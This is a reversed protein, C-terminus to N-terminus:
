MFNFNVSVYFNRGPAYIPISSGRVSRNLHEYYNQNFLNQVGATMGFIKLIQYSLKLDVVTFAPSETEGFATSIRSQKLVYRFSLEPRLKNKVYSGILKYRFDLPAIEPLPEDLELDQAYTYAMSLQHYLGRTIKQSWSIEFGTKFANDINVFQRVGPSTPLKATLTTDIVSSIFDQMYAIFVDVDIAFKPTKWELTLDFQNNIEPDLMPNGLMEYPDQGVPFYNIFRETLGGSRQARGLWFGLSLDKDFSKIGGISISPNVQTTETDEYVDSFEPASDSIGSVNLELRGSFIWEFQHKRVHYEGFIGTKSIKGSQWVNDTVTNGANPGMLFERTRIGDAGEIRVDLGSFLNGNAFEWIGETRGGYNQTNANTEANVMRPSLIKSYNDMLHDVFSGFITTNWSKLHDKNFTIDHRANFMWTDDKRLDMPLAPYDVDRALNRSLSLRLQQNKSIKFGLNSGFNGRTFNAKIMQGDGTEYDNGQSWAAFFGLDYGNGSFGLLGESRIINGNSDYGGSLRGYVNNQQSFRLSAPIFNITGGVTGGYRLAHPGKLVEIREMMNPAMQSTPPDMRNPCAATASQAGNMVINLQDYKFGRLVPDFGFAGSKRISNIAPTQNLLAGGDYAMKEEYDLSLTESDDLAPRLAIVTVPYLNVASSEMYSVGSGVASQIASASLEWKGYSVHSLTMNIEETLDFKIAGQEDSQGSQNGYKFTAGVIPMNTSKDLLRIADTEQAIIVSISMYSVIFLAIMRVMIKNYNM